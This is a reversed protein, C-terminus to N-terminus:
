AGFSTINLIVYKETCIWFKTPIQWFFLTGAEEGEKVSFDGDTRAFFNHFIYGNRKGM